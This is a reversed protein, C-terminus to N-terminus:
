RGAGFSGAAIGGVGTRDGIDYEFFCCCIEEMGEECIESKENRWEKESVLASYYLFYYCIKGYFVLFVSHTCLGTLM